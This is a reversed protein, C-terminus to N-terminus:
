RRGTRRSRLMGVGSAAVPVPAPIAGAVAAPLVFRDMRNPQNVQPMYFSSPIIEGMGGGLILDSVQPPGFQRLALTLTYALGGATIASTWKENKIFNQLLMGQVFAVGASALVNMGSAQLNSPLFGMIMRTMATGALVGAATQFGDM